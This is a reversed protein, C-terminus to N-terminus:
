LQTVGVLDVFGVYHGIKIRTTSINRFPCHNKVIGVLENLWTSNSNEYRLIQWNNQEILQAFQRMEYMDLLVATLNLGSQM